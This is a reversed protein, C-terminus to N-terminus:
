TSKCLRLAKEREQREVPSESSGPVLLSFSLAPSSSSPAAPPLPCSAHLPSSPSLALGHSLRRSRPSRHLLSSGDLQLLSPCLSPSPFLSPAHDPCLFPPLSFSLCCGLCLCRSWALLPCCVSVFGCCGRWPCVANLAHKHTHSLAGICAHTQPEQLFLHIGKRASQPGVVFCFNWGQFDNNWICVSQYCWVNDCSSYM